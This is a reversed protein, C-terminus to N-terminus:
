QRNMIAVISYTIFLCHAMGTKNSLVEPFADYKACWPVAIKNNRKQSKSKREANSCRFSNSNTVRKQPGYSSISIFLM